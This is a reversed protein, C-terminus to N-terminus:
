SIQSKRSVTNLSCLANFTVFSLLDFGRSIQIEGSVGGVGTCSRERVENTAALKVLLVIFRFEDYNKVIQQRFEEKAQDLTMSAHFILVWDFLIRTAKKWVSSLSSTMRTIPECGELPSADVRYVNSGKHFMKM